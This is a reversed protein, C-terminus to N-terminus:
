WLQHYTKGLRGIIINLDTFPFTFPQRSHVKSLGLSGREVALVFGNPLWDRRIKYRFSFSFYNFNRFHIFFYVYESDFQQFADNIRELETAEAESKKMATANAVANTKTRPARRKAATKAASRTAIGVQGLTLIVNSVLAKVMHVDYDLYFHCLPAAIPADPICNKVSAKFEQTSRPVM